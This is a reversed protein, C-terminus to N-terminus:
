GPHEGGRGQAGRRANTAMDEAAARLKDGSDELSQLPRNTSAGVGGLVNLDATPGELAGDLLGGGGGDDGELSFFAPLEVHTEGQALRRAEEAFIAQAGARIAAVGEPGGSKAMEHVERRARELEGNGGGGGGGAALTFTSEAIELARIRAGVREGEASLEHLAAHLTM